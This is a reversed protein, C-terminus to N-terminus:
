SARKSITSVQRRQWARCARPPRILSAVRTARGLAPELTGGFQLHFHEIARPAETLFSDWGHILTSQIHLDERKVRRADLSLNVALHRNTLAKSAPCGQGQLIGTCRGIFQLSGHPVIAKAPGVDITMTKPFIEVM